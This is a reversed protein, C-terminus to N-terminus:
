IVKLDFCVRFVNPAFQGCKVARLVRVKHKLKKCVEVIRKGEPKIEEEKLFAYLHIITSKKSLYFAVDLFEEGTKPLPMAIRDFRIKIKPAIIRVDGGYVEIKNQLNNLAINELALKHAVPNIEVGYVKKAESNHAIVLPFPSVGSFMVIIIEGKKVQKAIRLRENSSRASFYTEEVNVKMKVGNEQHIAEKTDIGALFKVKRTRFVGSHMEEKRVVTQIRPNSKLFAQAIVREKKKLEPPIELIMITGITEQSRPLIELEKPSLIKKLLEEVDTQKEKKQFEFKTNVVEANPVKVKKLLPFYIHDLEKTALYDQNILNREALFEKVKQANKLETSAALM